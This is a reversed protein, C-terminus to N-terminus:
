GCADAEGPSEDDSSILEGSARCMVRAEGGYDDSHVFLVDAATRPLPIDARLRPGSQLKEMTGADGVLRVIEGCLRACVDERLTRATPWDKGQGAFVWTRGEDCRRVNEAAHEGFDDAVSKRYAHGDFPGDWRWRVNIGYTGPGYVARIEVVTVGPAVFPPHKRVYRRAVSTPKPLKM